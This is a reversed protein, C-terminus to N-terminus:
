PSPWGGDQAVWETVLALVDPTIRPASNATIGLTAPTGGTGYAHVGVALPRTTDDNEYIWVPAGSQGGFTDVEYFLRRESVQVIRNNGHFQATGNGRDGPYGSINVQFGELQEAPRVGIPFWGVTEGIPEALHICGIDYDADENSQWRDVSSFSTSTVRGFPESEAAPGSGNRGPIVDITAAWGGFFSTSFVCHGATLVTRPGVLWGTGIAGSGSPGRMQLSCIMRWPSLDTDVIRVREDRGIISEFPPLLPGSRGKVSLFRVSRSLEGSATGASGPTASPRVPTAGLNEFPSRPNTVSNIEPM